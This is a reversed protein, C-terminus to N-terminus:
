RRTHLKLRSYDHFLRSYFTVAHVWMIGTRIWMLDSFIPKNSNRLNSVCPFCWPFSWLKGFSKHYRTSKTDTGFCARRVDNKKTVGNLTEWGLRYRCTVFLFEDRTHCRIQETEKYTSTPISHIEVATFFGNLFCICFPSKWTHSCCISKDSRIGKWVMKYHIHTPFTHFFASM